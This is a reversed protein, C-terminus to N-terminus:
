AEDFSVRPAARVPRLSWLYAAAIGLGAVGASM